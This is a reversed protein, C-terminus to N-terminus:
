GDAKNSYERKMRILVIGVVAAGALLATGLLMEEVTMESITPPIKHNKKDKKRGRRGKKDKKRGKGQEQGWEAGGKEDDKRALEKKLGNYRFKADKKESYARSM